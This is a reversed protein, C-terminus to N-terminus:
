NKKSIAPAAGVWFQLVKTDNGKRLMVRYIGPSSTVQFDFSVKKRKDLQVLKVRKGNDLQGGDQVIIVVKEGENGEPYAMAIPIVELPSVDSIRDFLGFENPELRYSDTEIDMRKKDVKIPINSDLKISPVKGIQNDGGKKYITNTALPKKRIKIECMAIEVEDTLASNQANSQHPFCISLFLSTLGFLLLHLQKANSVSQNMKIRKSVVIVYLIM